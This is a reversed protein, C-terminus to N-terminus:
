MSTDGEHDEFRLSQGPFRRRMIRPAYAVVLLLFRHFVLESQGDIM